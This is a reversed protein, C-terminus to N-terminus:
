DQHEYGYEENLDWYIQYIDVMNGKNGVWKATRKLIVQLDSIKSMRGDMGRKGNILKKGRCLFINKEDYVMQREKKFNKGKPLNSILLRQLANYYLDYKEEPNDINKLLIEQIENEYSIEDDMDIKLQLGKSAEEDAKQLLELREIESKSLESQQNKNKIEM